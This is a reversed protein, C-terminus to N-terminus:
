HLELVRLHTGGEQTNINNAFTLIIENYTETYQLAVEVQINDIEKEFYIPEKHVLKKAKNLHKVYSIIGGEYLFKHRRRTREDFFNINIGKNLFSLERIRRVIIEADFEITEFIEPDPRFIIETGRGKTPGIEELESTTIGRSFTQRYRIGNIEVFVELWESLANVVSIGVGHLGGSVKYGSGEQGFKGGAHLVTLVTELASKGTSPHVGIPIGRGNDKVSISNDQRIVVDITDCFGALAEDISNDIVENFLHHLGRSGTSGIYMGPRRRVAELGELVQIQEATYTSNGQQNNM